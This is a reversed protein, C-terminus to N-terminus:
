NEFEIFSRFVENAKNQVRVSKTNNVIDSLIQKGRTTLSPRGMYRCIQGVADCTAILIEDNASSRNVYYYQEIAKLMIEQPDYSINSAMIMALEIFYPDTENELIFPILYNFRSSEFFSSILYVQAKQAINVNDRLNMYELSYEQVNKEIFDIYSSEHYGYLGVNLSLSLQEISVNSTYGKTTFSGYPKDQPIPIRQRDFLYESDDLKYGSISWNSHSVILYASKTILPFFASEETKITKQWAINGSNQSGDNTYAIAFKTSAFIYKGDSYTAYINKDHLQSPLIKTWSLKKESISYTSIHYNSFLVSFSDIGILISLVTDFNSNEPTSWLTVTKRDVVSCLGVSTNVFSIIAGDEYKKISSIVDVFEIEEVIQGYPSIRIADSYRTNDNDLIYLLSGDNLEVLSTVTNYDQSIKWKLIGKVGYCSILYDSVIYVRGDRGIVPDQTASKELEVNWLLLGDPNYMSLVKANDSTIYVFNDESVSFYPSINGQVTRRWLVTGTESVANMLNGQSISIFGYSTPKPSSIIQGAGVAKWSLTVSDQSIVSSSHIISLIFFIIKAKM